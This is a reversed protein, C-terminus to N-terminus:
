IEQMNKRLKMFCNKHWKLIIAMSIDNKYDLMEYFVSKHAEAEKIDSISAGKPTTGQSLVQWTDRFSLRSGEIRQTDYTFSVM